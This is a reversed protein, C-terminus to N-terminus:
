WITRTFKILNLFCKLYALHLIFSSYSAEHHTVDWWNLVLWIHQLNSTNLQIKFAKDFGLYLSLCLPLTMELFCFDILNLTCSAAAPWLSLSFWALVDPQTIMGKVLASGDKCDQRLLHQSSSHLPKKTMFEFKKNQILSIKYKIVNCIIM